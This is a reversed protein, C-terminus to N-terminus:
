KDRQYKASDSHYPETHHQDSQLKVAQKSLKTMKGKFDASVFIYLQSFTGALAGVLDTLKASALM